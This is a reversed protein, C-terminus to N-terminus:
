SGRRRKLYWLLGMGAAAFGAVALPWYPTLAALSLGSVLLLVPLGCCVLPLLVAVLVFGRTEGGKNGVPGM